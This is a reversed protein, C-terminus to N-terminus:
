RPGLPVLDLNTQVDHLDLTLLGHYSAGQVTRNTEVVLRVRQGDQAAVTLSNRLL